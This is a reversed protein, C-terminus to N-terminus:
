RKMAELEPFRKYEAADCHEKILTSLAERRTPDTSQSVELFQDFRGSSFVGLVVRATYRGGTDRANFRVCSTYRQQRGVTALVPEAVYADRINGPDSLYTHLAAVLDGRYNAPFVNPRDEPAFRLDSM